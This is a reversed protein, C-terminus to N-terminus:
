TLADNSRDPLWFVVAAAAFYFMSTLSLASVIGVHPVAALVGIVYPALAGLLRGSNYGLGQGSARVATPFLESMLPAAVSWYAHGACGLVPSLLLLLTPHHVLRGYVPVLIASACVFAVFVRRRGFRDALPGFSLYGIFAGAQIPILWGTSKVVSMGAGGKDIPSALLNPLWFFLGWYAFQLLSALLCALLTRKRLEAGFLM